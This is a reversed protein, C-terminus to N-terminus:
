NRFRPSRGPDGPDGRIGGQDRCCYTEFWVRSRQGCVNEHGNGVEGTAGSGLVTPSRTADPMIVSRALLIRRELLITPLTEYPRLEELHRRLYSILQRRQNTSGLSPATLQPEVASVRDYIARWRKKVADDSVGQSLAFDRDCIDLLASELLLQQFRFVLVAPASQDFIFSMAHGSCSANRQLVGREDLM